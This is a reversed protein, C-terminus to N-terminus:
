DRVAGVVNALGGAAYIRGDVLLDMTADPQAYNQFGEEFDKRTVMDTEYRLTGRSVAEPENGNDGAQANLVHTCGLAGMAVALALSIMRKKM